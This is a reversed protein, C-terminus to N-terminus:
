QAPVSQEYRLEYLHAGKILISAEVPRRDDSYVTRFQRIVPVDDPLGLIELEETTPLRASLRDAFERQSYGLDALAQIAGGPIRLRRALPSDAAIEAPYYSWSLEIPEGDHSLLRKRLIATSPSTLRLASAVESSPQVEIVDLLRYAYGKPSPALYTAADVVIPRRDRVYVGKGVLSYIFGERKLAGLARQVTANAASFRHVLHQTSPLQEGPALVGAMIEARLDAAIQQHRPRVDGDAAPTM